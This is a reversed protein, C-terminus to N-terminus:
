LEMREDMLGIARNTLATLAPVPTEMSLPRDRLLAELSAGYDPDVAAVLRAAVQGARRVAHPHVTWIAEFKRWADGSDLSARAAFSPSLQPLDLAAGLTPGRFIEAPLTACATAM